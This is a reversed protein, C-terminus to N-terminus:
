SEPREGISINDLLPSSIAQQAAALARGDGSARGTGMLALGKEMM